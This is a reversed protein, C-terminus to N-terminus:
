TRRGCKPCVTISLALLACCDYNECRKYDKMADIVIVKRDSPETTSPL